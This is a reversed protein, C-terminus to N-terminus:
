CHKRLDEQRAIKAATGVASDAANEIREVFTAQTDAREDGPYGKVQDAVVLGNKCNEQCVIQQRSQQYKQSPTWHLSDDSSSYHFLPITSHHPQRLAGLLHAYFQELHSANDSGKRQALHGVTQDRLPLHFRKLCAIGLSELRNPVRAKSRTAPSVEPAVTSGLGQSEPMSGAVFARKMGTSSQVPAAHSPLFSNFIDFASVRKPSRSFLSMLPGISHFCGM